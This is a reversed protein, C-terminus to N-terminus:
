RWWCTLIKMGECFIDVEVQYVPLFTKYITLTGLCHIGTSTRLSIDVVLISYFLDKNDSNWFLLVSNLLVCNETGENPEGTIWYRFSSNSGDSWKWSDRFLGIWIDQRSPLLEMIDEMNDITALDTYNERCYSQAETMTKLEYVLHYQHAPLSSVACLWYLYLLLFFLNVF